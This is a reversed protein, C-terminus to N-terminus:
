KLDLRLERPGSEPLPSKDRERYDCVKPTITLQISPLDIERRQKAGAFLSTLGSVQIKLSEEIERATQARTKWMIRTRPLFAERVEQVPRGLIRALSEVLYDTRRDLLRDDEGRPDPEYGWSVSDGLPVMNREYYVTRPGEVAVACRGCPFLQLRYIAIPPFGDPFRRPSAIGFIDAM